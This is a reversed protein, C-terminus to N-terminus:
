MYKTPVIITTPMERKTIASENCRDCRQIIVANFTAKDTAVEVMDDGENVMAGERVHWLSVVADKTEGGMDPLRIEHM